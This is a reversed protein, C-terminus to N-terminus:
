KAEQVKEKVNKSTKELEEQAVRCGEIQGVVAVLETDYSEKRKYATQKLAIDRRETLDRHRLAATREVELEITRVKLEELIIDLKEMNEETEKRKGSARDIDDDYKTIGAIGDLVRRREISGMEVIRTIDGQQVLNYGEASIHAHSLLEDFETLTSKRDNIYFYSYYGDPNTTSRKVLRTLRVENADLPILRDSNDFVLSVKCFKSPHRNKGGNYILDTLKGARIAKSSKPGLVFLIADGINSKGSGNPGTIVTFGEQFTVSTKKGFSKFNELTVEKLYM